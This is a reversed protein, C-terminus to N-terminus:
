RDRAIKRAKLVRRFAARGQARVEEFSRRGTVGPHFGGRGARNGLLDVLRVRAAYARYWADDELVVAMLKAEGDAVAPADPYGREQLATTLWTLSTGDRAEKWWAALRDAPRVALAQLAIVAAVGASGEGFPGEETAGRAALLFGAAEGRRAWGLATAAARAPRAGHAGHMLLHLTPVVDLAADPGWEALERGLADALGAVAVEPAATAALEDLLDLAQAERQALPVEPLWHVPEVRPRPTPAPRTDPAAPLPAGMRSPGVGARRVGVFAAWARRAERLDGQRTALVALRRFVEPHYADVDLVTRVHGLAEGHRKRAEADLSLEWAAWAHDPNSALLERLVRRRRDQQNAGAYLGALVEAAKLDGPDVGLADELAQIAGARDGQRLLWVGLERPIAPDGPFDVRAAELRAATDAAKQARAVFAGARGAEPGSLGELLQVAKKAQGKRALILALKARAEPDGGRAAEQLALPPLSFVMDARLARCAQDLHAQYEAAWSAMDGGGLVQALVEETSRGQGFLDLYRNWDQHGTRKRLWDMAVGAQLYHLYLKAGGYKWHVLEDFPTLEGAFHAARLVGEAFSGRTGELYTALGETFWAPVPGSAARDSHFTHAIEHRMTRWWGMRGAESPGSFFTLCRGFSFGAGFEVGLGMARANMWDQNAFVEVRIDERLRHDHVTALDAIMRDLRDRFFPAAAGPGYPSLALVGTELPVHGFDEFRDLIKLYNVAKVLFPDLFRARELDERARSLLGERLLLAGRRLLCGTHRPDRELGRGYHELAQATKRDTQAADGLVRDLEAYAPDVALCRQRAAEAGVEDGAALLVEVQHALERPAEPNRELAKAAAHRAAKWDRAAVAAQALVLWARPEDPALELAAKAAKVAESRPGDEWLMWAEAAKLRADDPRKTLGRRYELLADGTQYHVRFVEGFEFYASGMDPQAQILAELHKIAGYPDKGMRAARAGQLRQFPTPDGLANFTRIAAAFAEGAQKRAGTVQLVEGLLLHTAVGPARAVLDRAAVLAADYAGTELDVRAQVWPALPGAAGEAVARAAVERAKSRQGQSWWVWAAAARAESPGGPHSRAARMASALEGREAHAVVEPPVLDARAAAALCALLALVLVWPTRMVPM